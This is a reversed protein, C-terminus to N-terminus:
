LVKLYVTDKKKNVKPKLNNSIKMVSEAWYVLMSNGM